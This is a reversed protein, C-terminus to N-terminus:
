SAKKATQSKFASMNLSLNLFGLFNKQNVDYKLTIPLWLADTIRVRIDMSAYFVNRKENPLLATFIGDYEAYPKIEVLPTWTNTKTNHSAILAYNMGGTFTYRGRYHDHDVASDKLSGSARLDLELPRGTKTLGQLYALDLRVSDFKASKGFASNASFTLLPKTRMDVLAQQFATQVLDYATHDYGRAKLYQLFQVPLGARDKGNVLVNSISDALAEKGPLVKGSVPDRLVSDNYNQLLRTFIDTYHSWAIDIDTGVFSALTSDRKNVVAWTFGGSFGNLNFNSDLGLAFNFQFNRSFTQHIYNTDVLLSPNTKSRLAFLTSQFKLSRNPGTLDTAALQFFSSMLDQWNGSKLNNATEIRNAITDQASVPQMIQLVICALGALLIKKM